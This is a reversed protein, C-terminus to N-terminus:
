NGTEIVKDDNKVNGTEIVKDNGTEIVNKPGHGWNKLVNIEGNASLYWLLGTFLAGIVIGVALAKKDSLWTPLHSQQM